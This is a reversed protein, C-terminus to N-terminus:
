REELLLSPDEPRWGIYTRGGQHELYFRNEDPDVDLMCGLAFQSNRNFRARHRGGKVRCYIQSDGVLWVAGLSIVEATGDNLTVKVGAGDLGILSCHCVLFPTDEVEVPVEQTTTILAYRGEDNTGIHRFLYRCINENTVASDNFFWTGERDLRIHYCCRPEQSGCSSLSICAQEPEHKM